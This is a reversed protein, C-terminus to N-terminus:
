SGGLGWPKSPWTAGDNWEDVIGNVVLTNVVSADVPAAVVVSAGPEVAIELM